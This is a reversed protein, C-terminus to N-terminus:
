ETLEVNVSMEGLWVSRKTGLRLTDVSLNSQLVAFHQKGSSRSLNFDHKVTQRPKMTEGKTSSFKNINISKKKFSHGLHWTVISFFPPQLWMTQRLLLQLTVNRVPIMDFMKNGNNGM